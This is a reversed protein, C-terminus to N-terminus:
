RGPLSAGERICIFVRQIDHDAIIKLSKAGWGRLNPPCPFRGSPPALNVGIAWPRQHVLRRPYLADAWATLNQDMTTAPTNGPTTEFGRETQPAEPSPKPISWGAGPTERIWGISLKARATM